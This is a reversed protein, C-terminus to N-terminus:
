NVAYDHARFTSVRMLVTPSTKIMEFVCVDGEELDNDRSFAAWGMGLRMASSTSTHCYCRVRWQKEGSTQLNVFQNRAVHKNAFRKPVYVYKFRINYPQLVTMFSRSKPMSMKAAQIARERGKSSTDSPQMDNRSVNSDDLEVIDELEELIVNKRSPYQIEMATKDFIIVHFNSHGEYKFVLLHGASISHCEFFDELNDCFWINKETKLLGVKWTGSCSTLTALTSIEDGFDKVFKPPISQKSVIAPTDEVWVTCEDEFKAHKALQHAVMNGNRRSGIHSVTWSKFQLLWLRMGEILKCISSPASGTDSIAMVVQKAGGEIIIEKLSLDRALHIGEEMAKAEVELPGLPLQIRKSLAGMLQGKENRIVVGVGCSGSYSSIAGDVNVKYWGARPPNWPTKARAPIRIPTTTDSQRCEETYNRAEEAVQKPQKCHGEHKFANRNNWIKWATVAYREWDQVSEDEKLRWVVDIFEKPRQLQDRAKTPLGVIKWVESAFKCGWLVHGSTECLGCLGCSDDRTIKRSALRSNTAPM